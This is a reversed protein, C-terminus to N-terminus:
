EEEKWSVYEPLKRNKSVDVAIRIVMEVSFCNNFRVPTATGGSDFELYEESFEKPENDIALLYPPDYTSDMYEVFGCERSIGMTLIGFDQIELLVIQPEQDKLSELNERLSVINDFHRKQHNSYTLIMHALIINGEKKIKHCKDGVFSSRRFNHKTGCLQIKHDVM